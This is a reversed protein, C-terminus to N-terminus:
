EAATRKTARGGDAEDNQQLDVQSDRGCENEGDEERVWDGRRGRGLGMVDRGRRKWGM